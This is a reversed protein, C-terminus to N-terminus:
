KIREVTFRPQGAYVPDGAPPPSATFRRGCHFDGISRLQGVVAEAYRAPGRVTITLVVEAQDEAPSVILTQGEVREILYPAGWLSVPIEVGAGLTEASVFDCRREADPDHLQYCVAGAPMGDASERASELVFGTPECYYGWCSDLENGHADRIIYGYVSGEAWCRVEEESYHDFEMRPDPAGEYPIIQITFGKYIEEHAVIM